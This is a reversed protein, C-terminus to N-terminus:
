LRMSIDGVGGTGVGLVLRIPKSPYPQAPAAAGYLALAMQGALLM